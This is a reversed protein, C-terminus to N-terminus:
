LTTNFGMGIGDWGMGSIGPNKPDWGSDRGKKAIGDRFDWGMGSFERSGPSKFGMGFVFILDWGTPNLVLKLANEIMRLLNGGFYQFKFLYNMKHTSM